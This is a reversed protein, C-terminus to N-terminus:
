SIVIVLGMQSQKSVNEEEGSEASKGEFQQLGAVKDEFRWRDSRDTQFHYWRHQAAVAQDPIQGHGM